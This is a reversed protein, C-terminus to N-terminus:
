KTLQGINAGVSCMRDTVNVCFKPMSSILDFAYEANTNEFTLNCSTNKSMRDNFIDAVQPSVSLSFGFLIEIM